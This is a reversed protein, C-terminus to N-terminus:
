RRPDQELGTEWRTVVQRHAVHSHLQQRRGLRSRVAGVLPLRRVPREGEVAPAEVVEDPGVPRRERLRLLDRPQQAKEVLLYVDVEIPLQLLARLRLEASASDSAWDSAM